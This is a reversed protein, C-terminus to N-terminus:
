DFKFSFMVKLVMDTSIVKRAANPAPIMLIKEGQIKGRKGATSADDAPFSRNLGRAITIPTMIDKVIIPIIEEAKPATKRAWTSSNFIRASINIRKIPKENSSSLPRNLENEFNGRSAPIFLSPGTDPKKSPSESPTSQIGQMPDISPMIRVLIARSAVLPENASPAIM